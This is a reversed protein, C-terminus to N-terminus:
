FRELVYSEPVKVTAANRSAPERVVTEGRATDAQMRYGNANEGVVDLLSSLSRDAGGRKM